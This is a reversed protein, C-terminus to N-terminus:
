RSDGDGTVDGLGLAPRAPELQREDGQSILMIGLYSVVGLVAWAIPALQWGVTSTVEDWDFLPLVPSFLHRAGFSITFVEPRWLLYYVIDPLVLSLLVLILVIGRAHLPGLGRFRTNTVLTVDDDWSVWGNTVAIVFVSLTFAFICIATILGARTYKSCSDRKGELAGTKVPAYPAGLKKPRERRKTTIRSQKM